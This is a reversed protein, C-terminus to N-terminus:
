LLHGDHGILVRVALDPSPERVHVPRFVWETGNVTHRLEETIRWGASTKLGVAEMQALLEKKAAALREFATGALIQVIEEPM